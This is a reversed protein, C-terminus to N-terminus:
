ADKAPLAFCLALYKPVGFSVYKKTNRYLSVISMFVTSHGKLMSSRLSNCSPAQGQPPMPMKQLPPPAKSTQPLPVLNEVSHVYLRKPPIPQAEAAELLRKPPPLDPQKPMLGKAVMAGHSLKAKAVLQNMKDKALSMPEACAVLPDSPFALCPWICIGCFIRHRM